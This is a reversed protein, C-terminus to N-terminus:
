DNDFSFWVPCYNFHYFVPRIWSSYSYPSLSMQIVSLEVRFVAHAFPSKCGLLLTFTVPYFIALLSRSPYTTIINFPSVPNKRSCALFDSIMQPNISSSFNSWINLSIWGTNLTPTGELQNLLLRAIAPYYLSDDLDLGPLSLPAQSSNPWLSHRTIMRYGQAM